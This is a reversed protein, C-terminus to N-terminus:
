VCKNKKGQWKRDGIVPQMCSCDLYLCCNEDKGLQEATQPRDNFCVRGDNFAPSSVGEEQEVDGRVWLSGSTTFVSMVSVYLWRSSSQASEQEWVAALQFCMPSFGNFFVLMSIVAFTCFCSSTLRLWFLWAPPQPKHKILLFSLRKKNLVSFRFLTQKRLCLYM